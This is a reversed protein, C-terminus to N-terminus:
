QIDKTNNKYPAEVTRFNWEEMRTNYVHKYAFQVHTCDGIVTVYGWIDFDDRKYIIYLKRIQTHQFYCLM